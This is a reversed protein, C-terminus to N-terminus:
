STATSTRMPSRLTSARRPTTTQACTSTITPSCPTGRVSSFCHAAGKAVEAQCEARERGGRAEGGKEAGGVEARRQGEALDGERGRQGPDEDASPACLPAM